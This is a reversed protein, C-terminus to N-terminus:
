QGETNDEPARGKNLGKKKKKSVNALITWSLILIIACSFFRADSNMWPIGKVILEASTVGRTNHTQEIVQDHLWCMAEESWYLCLLICATPHNWCFAVTIVWTWLTLELITTLCSPPSMWPLCSVPRCPNFRGPVSPTLLSLGKSAHSPAQRSSGVSTKLNSYSCQSFVTVSWSYFIMQKGVQRRSNMLKNVVM